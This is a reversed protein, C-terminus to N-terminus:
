LEWVGVGGYGWVVCNGCLIVVSLQKGNSVNSGIKLDAWTHVAQGILATSCGMLPLEEWRGISAGGM